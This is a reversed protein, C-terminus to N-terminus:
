CYNSVELRLGHSRNVSIKNRNLCTINMLDEAAYVRGEATTIAETLADLGPESRKM